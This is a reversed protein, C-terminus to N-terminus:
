GRGVNVKDRYAVYTKQSAMTEFHALVYVNHSCVSFHIAHQTSRKIFLTSIQLQKHWLHMNALSKAIEYSRNKCTASCLLAIEMCWILEEHPSHSHLLFLLILFLKLQWQSYFLTYMTFLIVFLGRCTAHYFILIITTTTTNAIKFCLVILRSPLDNTSFM